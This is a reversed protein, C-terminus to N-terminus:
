RPDRDNWPPLAADTGGYQTLEDREMRQPSGLFGATDYRYYNPNRENLHTLLRRQLNSAQGIYVLEGFAKLEYVGGKAPVHQRVHAPTATSWNKTIPM